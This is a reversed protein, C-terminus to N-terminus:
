KIDVSWEQVAQTLEFTLGSTNPDAFHAPIPPGIAKFEPRPKASAKEDGYDGKDDRSPKEAKPVPRSPLPQISVRVTGLAVDDVAYSGDPKIDALYTRNDKALFVVTAGALPKGQFKITGHIRGRPADGCGGLAVLVFAATAFLAIRM